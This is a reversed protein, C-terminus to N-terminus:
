IAVNIETLHAPVAQSIATLNNEADVRQKVESLGGDSGLYGLTLNNLGALTDTKSADVSMNSEVQNLGEYESQNTNKNAQKDISSNVSGADSRGMAVVIPLVKYILKQHSTKSLITTSPSDSLCTGNVLQYNPACKLCISDSSSICIQSSTTQLCLFIILLTPLSYFTSSSGSNNNSMIILKFAIFFCILCTQNTLNSFFMM